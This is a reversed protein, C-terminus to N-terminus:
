NGAASATALRRLAERAYRYTFIPVYTRIRASRHEEFERTVERRVTEPDVVGRFEDILRRTADNVQRAVTQELDTM